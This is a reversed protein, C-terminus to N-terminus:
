SEAALLAVGKTSWQAEVLANMMMLDVTAYRTATKKRAAGSAAGATTRLVSTTSLVSSFFGSVVAIGTSVKGFIGGVSTM